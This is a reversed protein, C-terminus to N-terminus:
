LCIFVVICIWWFFVALAELASVLTGSEKLKCLSTIMRNKKPSIRFSENKNVKEDNCIM